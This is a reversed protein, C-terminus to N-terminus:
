LTEKFDSILLNLTDIRPDESYIEIANAVATSIDVDHLIAVESGSLIDNLISASIPCRTASDMFGTFDASEGTIEALVKSMYKQYDVGQNTLRKVRAEFSEENFRTVVMSATKKAGFLDESVLQDFSRLAHAGYHIDLFEILDKTHVNRLWRDPSTAGTEAAQIDRLRITGNVLYVPIGFVEIASQQEQLKM